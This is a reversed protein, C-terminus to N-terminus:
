NGIAIWDYNKSTSVFGSCTVFCINDQANSLVVPTKSFQKKFLNLGENTTGFDLTVSGKLTSLYNNKINALTNSHTETKSQVAVIMDILKENLMKMQEIQQVLNNNNDKINNLEDLIRKLTENYKIFQKKNDDKTSKIINLENWIIDFETNLSANYNGQRNCYESM